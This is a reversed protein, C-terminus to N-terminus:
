QPIIGWNRIKELVNKDPVGEGLYILEEGLNWVGWVPRNAELGPKIEAFRDDSVLNEWDTSQPLIRIWEWGEGELAELKGRAAECDKCNETELLFLVGKKGRAEAKRFADARTELSAIEEKQFPFFSFKWALATGSLVWFFAFLGLLARKKIRLDLSM